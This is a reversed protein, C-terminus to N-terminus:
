IDDTNGGELNYLPFVKEWKRMVEYVISLDKVFIMQLEIQLFQHFAAIKHM